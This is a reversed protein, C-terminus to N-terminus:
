RVAIVIKASDYCKLAIQNVCFNTSISTIM